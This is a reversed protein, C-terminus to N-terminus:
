SLTFTNAGGYYHEEQESDIQFKGM